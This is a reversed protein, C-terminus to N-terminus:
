VVQYPVKYNGVNIDVSYSYNMVQEYDVESTRKQTLVDWVGNLLKNLEENDYDFNNSGIQFYGCKKLSANVSDIFLPNSRYQYSNVNAQIAEKIIDIKGSMINLSVNGNRFSVKWEYGVLLNALQNKIQKKIETSFNM